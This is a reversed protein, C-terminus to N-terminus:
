PAKTELTEELQADQAALQEYIRVIGEMMSRAGADRMLVGRARAQEAREQWYRSNIM